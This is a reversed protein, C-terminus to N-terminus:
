VRENSGFIMNLGSDYSMSEGGSLMRELRQLEIFRRRQELMHQILESTEVFTFESENKQLFKFTKPNSM